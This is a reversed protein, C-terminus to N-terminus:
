LVIIKEAFRSLSPDKFEIVERIPVWKYQTSLENIHHCKFLFRFDYHRHEQESKRKPIQHVDLDFTTESVLSFDNVDLGTEEMLERTAAKALTEDVEAEVHGGPQLWRKLKEHWILLINAHANDIVVASTTIHGKLNNKSFLDDNTNIFDVVENFHQQEFVDFSHYNELQKILNLKNM